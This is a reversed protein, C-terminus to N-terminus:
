VTDESDIIKPPVKAKSRSRTTPKKKVESLIEKAQEDHDLFQGFFVSNDSRMEKMESVLAQTVTTLDQLSGQVESMALNNCDRQEKNFARWKDDVEGIFLQWKDSQKGFWTLLIMLIVIILVVFVAQEWATFPIAEVTEVM